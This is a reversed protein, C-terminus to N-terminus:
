NSFIKAPIYDIGLVRIQDSQVLLFYNNFTVKRIKDIGKKKYKSINIDNWTDFKISNVFYM